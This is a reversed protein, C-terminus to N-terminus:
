VAHIDYYYQFLITQKQRSLSDAALQHLPTISGNHVCDNDLFAISVPANSFNSTSNLLTPKVKLVIFM